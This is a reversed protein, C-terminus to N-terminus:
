SKYKLISYLNCTFIDFCFTLMLSVKKSVLTSLIVPPVFCRKGNGNIFFIHSEASKRLFNRFFLAAFFSKFRPLNPMAYSILLFM